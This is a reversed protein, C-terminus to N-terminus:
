FHKQTRKKRLVIPTFCKIKQFARLLMRKQKDNLSEWPKFLLWKIAKYDEDNKFEHRLKKREKDLVENLLKFVHFRDAVMDANPFVTKATTLFGDWLDCSFVEIKSCFDTGKAKFYAILEEKTRFNYNNLM